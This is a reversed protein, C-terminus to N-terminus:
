TNASSAIPAKRLLTMMQDLTAQRADIPAPLARSALVHQLVLRTRGSSPVSTDGLLHLIIRQSDPSGLQILSAKAALVARRVPTSRGHTIHDLEISERADAAADILVRSSQQAMQDGMVAPPLDVLVNYVERQEAETLCRCLMMLSATQMPQLDQLLVSSMRPYLNPLTYRTRSVFASQLSASSKLDQLIDLIAERGQEAVM